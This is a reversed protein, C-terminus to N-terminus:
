GPFNPSQANIEFRGTKEKINIRFVVGNITSIDDSQFPWSEGLHTTISSIVPLYRDLLSRMAKNREHTNKLEEFEGQVVVSKWNSLDKMEDVEFCIKPNQRMIFTKKGETTHCYIHNGDYAYSIPVIYTDGHLSCGIRGILQSKLVDEIQQPQLNGLM